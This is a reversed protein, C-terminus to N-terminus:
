VYVCEGHIIATSIYILALGLAVKTMIDATYFVVTFGDQLTACELKYVEHLRQKRILIWCSLSLDIADPGYSPLHM